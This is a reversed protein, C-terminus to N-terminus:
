RLDDLARQIIAEAEDGTSAAQRLAGFAKLFAAVEKPEEAAEIYREGALSEVVVLNDGYVRFGLPYAPMRQGFGIVGLEVSPLRMVSLLKGLQGALTQPSVVLTRLAGEGLVVQVRKGPADLIEQRRLRATVADEIEADDPGWERAGGALGMLERAYGSTHLFGPIVAVQFEGFWSAQEELERVRDQYAALGGRRRMDVAFARESRAGGLEAILEEAVGVDARCAQVWARIDNETPLLEGHEIKWVRSQVVGMQRALANGSRYGAALRLEKLRAALADRRPNGPMLPPITL